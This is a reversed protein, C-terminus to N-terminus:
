YNIYFNYINIKYITTDLIRNNMYIKKNTINM